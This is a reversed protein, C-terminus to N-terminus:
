EIRLIKMDWTTLWSGDGQNQIWANLVHFVVTREVDDDKVFGEPNTFGAGGNHHRPMRPHPQLFLGRAVGRYTRGVELYEGEYNEVLEVARRLEEFRRFVRDCQLWVTELDFAQGTPHATAFTRTPSHIAFTVTDGKKLARNEADVSQVDITVAYNPDVESEVPAILGEFRSLLAISRVVGRFQTATREMEGCNNEGHVAVASLLVCALTM